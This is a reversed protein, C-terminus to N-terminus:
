TCEPKRVYRQPLSPACTVGTEDHRFRVIFLGAPATRQSAILSFCPPSFALVRSDDRETAPFFAGGASPQQTADREFLEGAGRCQRATVFRRRVPEQLPEDLRGAEDVPVGEEDEDGMGGKSAGREGAGM